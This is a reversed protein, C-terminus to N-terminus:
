GPTSAASSVPAWPGCSRAEFGVDGALITVTAAGSPIAGRVVSADSGDFGNTVAWYCGSGGAAQYTGPQIEIGVRYAADGNSPISVPSPTLPVWQCLGSTVVSADGARLTMIERGTFQEGGLRNGSGDYRGWSCGDGATTYSGPAVQGGSPGVPADIAGFQSLPPAPASTTSTSPLTTTPAPPTVPAATGMARVFADLLQQGAALSMGRDWRRKANCKLLYTGDQAFGGPKTCRAGAKANALQCGSALVVLAVM